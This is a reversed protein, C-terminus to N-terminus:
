QDLAYRWVDVLAFHAEDTLRGHDGLWEQTLQREDWLQSESQIFWVSDLGHLRDALERQAAAASRGGNTWPGDLAAYDSGFYYEFTYRVYPMQFLVADGPLRHVSVYSAANRFDSKMPHTAQISLGLLSFTLVLALTAGALTLSLRRLRCVGLAALLYFAPSIFILYRPEFVPVRLSVLYILAIPLILWVTLLVRRRAAGPRSERPGFVGMLVAFLFAAPVVWGGVQAVGRTYLELLLSLVERVSYHPHGTNFTALLWPMQWVALPLYPLTLLAVCILWARWRTRYHPWLVPLAAAYVGIMLASLLHVYFALSAALVFGAWYRRGGSSFGRWLCLMAVLTLTAVMTYMKGDQGYWILYPSVTAILTALTAAKTGVMRRGVQWTLAVALVGLVASPFRLGYETEGAASLWPRMLLYYLPGNHGEKWLDEILRSLPLASFRLVDVEDRWLSQYDLSVVRVFFAVLVLGFATLRIARSISRRPGPVPYSQALDNVQRGAARARRAGARRFM